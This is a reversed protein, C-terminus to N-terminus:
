ASTLMEAASGTMSELRKRLREIEKKGRVSRCVAERLHECSDRECRVRRVRSRGRLEHSCLAVARLRGILRRSRFVETASAGAAAGSALLALTEIM